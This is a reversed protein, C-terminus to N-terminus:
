RRSERALVREARVTKGGEDYSESVILRDGRISFRRRQDAGLYAPINGGRV